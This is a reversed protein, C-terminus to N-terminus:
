IISPDKSIFFCFNDFSSYVEKHSFTSIVKTYYMMNLYRLNQINATVTVTKVTLVLSLYFNRIKKHVM